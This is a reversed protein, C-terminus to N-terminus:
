PFLQQIVQLLTNCKMETEAWEDEPESDATVGAGAYLIAEKPQLQMCRLNVYLQTVDNFNVPGLYGSYYSRDSHEMKELFEEASEIPMGCVASTPHLLHLMVSGLQPFNTAHMDVKFQTKLHILNAAVVTKPGEEDFERLRIKKFCNIIYRSVLAQEEIEKQTWAVKNLPIDARYPQTGALSVTEFWRGESINLLLEPTAGVWTGADPISVLSIFARPYKESLSEFLRLADFSEPLSIWKQRSPVVKQMNGERISEIGTKVMHIFEDKEILGRQAPRYYFPCPSPSNEFAAFFDRAVRDSYLAQPRPVQSDHAESNWVVSAKILLKEKNRNYPGFLFGAPLDELPTNELQLYQAEGIAMHQIHTYPARWLAISLGKALAAYVSRQVISSQSIPSTIPHSSSTEKM